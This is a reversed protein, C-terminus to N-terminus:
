KNDKNFLHELVQEKGSASTGAVIWGARVAFWISCVLWSLFFFPLTWVTEITLLARKM